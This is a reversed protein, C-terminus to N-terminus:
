GPSVRTVNECNLAVPAGGVARGHSISNRPVLPVIYKRVFPYSTTGSTIVGFSNAARVGSFRSISRPKRVPALAWISDLFNSPGIRSASWARLKRSQTLLRFVGEQSMSYPCRHVEEANIALM